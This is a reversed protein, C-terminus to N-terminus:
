NVIINFSEKATWASVNFLNAQHLEKRLVVRNVGAGPAPNGPGQTFDSTEM